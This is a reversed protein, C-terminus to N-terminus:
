KMYKSARNNRKEQMAAATRKARNAKAVQSASKRAVGAMRADAIAQAGRGKISKAAFHDAAKKYDKWTPKDKAKNLGGGTPSYLYANVADRQDLKRMSDAFNSRGSKLGAGFQAQSAKGRTFSKGRASNPAFMNKPKSPKSYGRRGETARASQVVPKKPKNPM